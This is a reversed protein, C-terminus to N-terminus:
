LKSLTCMSQYGISMVEDCSLVAYNFKHVVFKIAQMIVIHLVEVMGWNSNDYWHKKSFTQGQSVQSSFV